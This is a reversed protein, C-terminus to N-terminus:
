IKMTKTKFNLTVQDIGLHKLSITYISDNRLPYVNGGVIIYQKTLTVTVNVPELNIMLKKSKNILIIQENLDISVYNPGYNPDIYIKHHKLYEMVHPHKSGHWLLSLLNKNDDIGRDILQIYAPENNPIINGGLYLIENRHIMFNSTHIGMDNYRLQYAYSDIFNPADIYKRIIKDSARISLYRYIIGPYKMFANFWFDKVKDDMLDVFEEDHELIFELLCYFSFTDLLSINSMIYSLEEAAQQAWCQAILVPTIKVNITEGKFLKWALQEMTRSPITDTYGRLYMYYWKAGLKKLNSALPHNPFKDGLHFMKENDLGYYLILKRIDDTTEAHASTNFIDSTIMSRGIKSSAILPINVNSADLLVRANM